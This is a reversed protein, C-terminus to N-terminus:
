WLTRVPYRRIASDATVLVYDGAIAHAILMRDVPDRHIAPLADAVAWCGAPFDLLELGFLAQLDAVDEQVPLRGRRRLDSYEWAVVASLFAATGPDRLAEIWPKRLRRDGVLLWVLVQTDILLRV